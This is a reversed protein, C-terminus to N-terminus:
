ITGLLVHINGKQDPIQFDVKNVSPAAKLFRLGGTGSGM